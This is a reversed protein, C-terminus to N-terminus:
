CIRRQEREIARDRKPRDFVGLARAEPLRVIYWVLFVALSLRAFFTAWASAAAGSWGIGLLDPM